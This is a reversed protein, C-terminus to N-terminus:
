DGVDCMDFHLDMAEQDNIEELDFYDGIEADEAIVIYMNGCKSIYNKQAKNIDFRQETSVWEVSYYYEEERVIENGDSDLSEEELVFGIHTIDPYQTLRNFVTTKIASAMNDFPYREINAGKHIEIAFTKTVDQKGVWNTAMRSFSTKIDDVLFWGVYKGSITIRECSELVFTISKLRSM